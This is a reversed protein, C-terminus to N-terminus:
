FGEFFNEKVREVAAAQDRTPRSEPHIGQLMDNLQRELLSRDISVLVYFDYVEREVTKGDEGFYHRLLWFDSERRAGTYSADSTAKVV